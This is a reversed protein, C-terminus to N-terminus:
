KVLGSEFMFISILHPENGPIRIGGRFTVQRLARVDKWVCVVLFTSNSSWCLVFIAVRCLVQVLMGLFFFIIYALVFIPWFLGAFWAPM